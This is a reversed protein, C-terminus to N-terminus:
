SASEYAEIVSTPIRGRDSVQHGHERAWQRIAATQERSSRTSKKDAQQGSRRQGREGAGGRGGPRRAADVFPALAARLKAANKESLDISYSRGDPGSEVTGSAESGDLDDIYRVTTQQAM